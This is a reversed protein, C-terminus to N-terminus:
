LREEGVCEQTTKTTVLATAGLETAPLPFSHGHEKHHPWTTALLVVDGKTDGQCCPRRKAGDRRPTRLGGNRHPCPIQAPDASGETTSVDLCSSSPLLGADGLNEEVERETKRRKRRQKGLKCALFGWLAALALLLGVLAPVGFILLSSPLDTSPVTPLTDSSPVGPAPKTNDGFLESCMVCSRTLPDFCQSSLCSAGGDAKGPSAMASREQM